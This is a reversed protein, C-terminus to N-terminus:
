NAEKFMGLFISKDNIYFDRMLIKTGREDLTFLFKITIDGFKTQYENDNVKKLSNLISTRNKPISLKKLEKNKKIEKFILSENKSADKFYNDYAEDCYKVSNKAECKKFFIYDEEVGVSGFIDEIASISAFDADFLNLFRYILKEKDNLNRQTPNEKQQAVIEKKSINREKKKNAKDCSFAGLIILLYLSKLM